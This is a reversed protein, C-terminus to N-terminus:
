AAKRYYFNLIGGLRSSKAVAGTPSGRALRHDPFPIVNGIGQHNREHNYYQVYETLVNRLIPESTFIFNRLCEEKVSRVWREAYANLNPSRFPIMLTKIGAGHLIAKFCPAFKTDRDMLLYRCGSLFGWEPMTLNRSIQKMWDQDPNPTIGALHIERTSLSIFFLCHYHVLHFGRWVPVTFFDVASMVQLHSHLFQFWSMGNKREPSPQIGHKKLINQVTERSVTHGVNRLAGVLRTYGWGPNDIAFRVVKLEIEEKTRPRGPRRLKSTDQWKKILDSNWRLLTAPSFPCPLSKLIKRGVEKAVIALSIKQPITLKLRQPLLELLVLVLTRLFKNQLEMEQNILAALLVVQQDTFM